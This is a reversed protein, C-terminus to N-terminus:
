RGTTHDDIEDGIEEVVENVSGGISDDRPTQTYNMAMIAFIGLLLVAIVILVNRNNM